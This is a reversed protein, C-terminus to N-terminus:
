SSFNSLKLVSQSLNYEMADLIDSIPFCVM